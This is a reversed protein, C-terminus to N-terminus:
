LGKRGEPITPMAPKEGHLPHVIRFGVFSSQCHWWKSKPDNPDALLWVDHSSDRSASRIKSPATEFTGGRVIHNVGTAPGMPDKPWEGSLVSKYYDAGYWDLCWENANGHMDYIGRANPKKTAVPHTEYASNARHWAYDGLKSADDGFSYAAQSGARCAYEWEAETPLRYLKGTAKTLWKCYVMAGYWGICFAPRQEGGFGRYPDLYPTTPGTIADVEYPAGRDGKPTMPVAARFAEYETWTVETKGIWFPGVTVRHQPGEDAKRGEESDPSGMLFAGGPVAIMDFTVPTGEPGPVTETYNALKEPPTEAPSAAPKEPASAPPDGSSDGSYGCLLGLTVALGVLICAIRLAKPRAAHRFVVPRNRRNNGRQISDLTNPTASDILLATPM